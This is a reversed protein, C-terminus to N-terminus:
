QKLVLGSFIKLLVFFGLPHLILGLHIHVQHRSNLHPLFTNVAMFARFNCLIHLIINGTHFPFCLRLCNQDVTENITQQRKIKNQQIFITFM